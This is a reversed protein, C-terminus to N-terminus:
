IADTEATKLEMRVRREASRGDRGHAVVGVELWEDTPPQEWARLSTGVDGFMAYPASAESMTQRDNLFFTVHRVDGTTDATFTISRLMEKCLHISRGFRDTIMGGTRTNVLAIRAIGVSTDQLGSDNADTTGAFTVASSAGRKFVGPKQVSGVLGECPERACVGLADTASMCGDAHRTGNGAIFRPVFSASMADGGSIRVNTCSYYDGFYSKGGVTGGFWAWGLVYEGDPFIRPITIDARFLYVDTGCHPLTCFHRDAEFCSFQFAYKDHIAKQM